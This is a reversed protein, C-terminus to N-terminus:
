SLHGNHVPPPNDIGDEATPPSKGPVGAVVFPFFLPCELMAFM